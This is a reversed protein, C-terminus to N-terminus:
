AIVVSSTKSVCLIVIDAKVKAVAIIKLTADYIITCVLYEARKLLYKARKLRYFFARM